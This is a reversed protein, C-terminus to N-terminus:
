RASVMSSTLTTAGVWKMGAGILVLTMLYLGRQIATSRAQYGILIHLLQGLM